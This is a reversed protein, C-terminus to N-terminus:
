AFVIYGLSLLFVLGHKVLLGKCFCFFDCFGEGCLNESLVDSHDSFTEVCVPSDVVFLELV